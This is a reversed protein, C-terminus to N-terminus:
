RRVTRDAAPANAKALKALAREVRLASEETEDFRLMLEHRLLALRAQRYIPASRAIEPNLPFTTIM